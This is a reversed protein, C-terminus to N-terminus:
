LGSQHHIYEEEERDDTKNHYHQNNLPEKIKHICALRKKTCEVNRAAFLAKGKTCKWRFNKYSYDPDRFAINMIARTKPRTPPEKDWRQKGQM